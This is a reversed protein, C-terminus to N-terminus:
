DNRIKKLLTERIPAIEPKLKNLEDYSLGALEHPFVLWEESTHVFFDPEFNVKSLNPKYYPVAIKIQRVKTTERLHNKLAQISLGSDHVDDIIVLRDTDELREKFYESGFIKVESSRQNSDSYSNVRVVDHDCQIGHAYLTEHVAIAIPAGGRWVGILFTPCYDSQIILEALTFSDQLLQKATIYSKQM